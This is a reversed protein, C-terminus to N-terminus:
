YVNAHDSVEGFSEALGKTAIVAFCAFAITGLLGARFDHRHSGTTQHFSRGRTYISPGNPDAESSTKLNSVATRTPAPIPTVGKALIRFDM